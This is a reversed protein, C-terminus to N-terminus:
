RLIILNKKKIVHRDELLNDSFSAIPLLIKTPLPTRLDKILCATTLVHLSYFHILRCLDGQTMM